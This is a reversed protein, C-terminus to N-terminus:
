NGGNPPYLGVYITERVSLDSDDHVAVTPIDCRYIGSPLSANKRHLLDVRQPGRAEYVSDGSGRLRLKTENLYWDGRHVGQGSTRCTNMDTHCQVNDSSNMVLTLDVFSKNPYISLGFSVYPIAQSHVEVM